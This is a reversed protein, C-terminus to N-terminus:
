FISNLVTALRYGAKEIQSLAMRCHDYMYTAPVKESNKINWIECTSTATDTGWDYITGSCFKKIQKKTSTM